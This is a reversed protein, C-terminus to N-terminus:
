RVWGSDAEPVIELHVHNRHADNYHPTLAMQFVDRDVADCVLRRMLRAKEDDMLWERCPDAGRDRNTWDELVSLERGDDLEFRAVDIAQGSAHGSQQTTGAVVADRRYASLHDLGVVGHERLIPAWALLARALRCDLYNTPADKRGGQVRVGDIASTLEIPWAVGPAKTKPV